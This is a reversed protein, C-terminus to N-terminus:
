RNLMLYVSTALLPAYGLIFLPNFVAHALRHSVEKTEKVVYIICLFASGLCLISYFNEISLVEHILEEEFPLYFAWNFLAAVGYPVLGLTVLQYKHRQSKAFSAATKVRTMYLYGMLTAVVSLTALTVMLIAGKTEEYQIYHAFITFYLSVLTMLPTLLHRLYFALDRSFHLGISLQFGFEVIRMMFTVALFM